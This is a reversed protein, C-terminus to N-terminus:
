EKKGLLQFSDGKIFTKSKKNGDSEWSDVQLAGSVSLLSGKKVFDEAIEAQRGWVEVPIWDTPYNGNKDKRPRKVAISWRAVLHEGVKICDPESGANGIITVNNNAAM